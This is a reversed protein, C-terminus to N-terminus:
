VGPLAHVAPGGSAGAPGLRTMAILTYGCRLYHASVHMRAFTSRLVCTRAGPFHFTNVKTAAALQM